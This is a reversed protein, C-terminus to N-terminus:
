YGEFDAKPKISMSEYTANEDGVRVEDVLLVRKKTSSLSRNQRDWRPKYIGTKFYVGKKDNYTNPGTHEIVKVGDKWVEFFGDEKYSRKIHFVWDTWENIKYDGIIKEGTGQIRGVPFTIRKSDWAWTIKWQGNVTRLALPPSAKAIEGEDVDPTSHWQAVVEYVPDIDFNHLYISFAYWREVNISAPERFLKIESRYSGTGDAKIEKDNVKLEFRASYKGLRASPTTVIRIANKCKLCTEKNFGRLNGSEFDGVFIFHDVVFAFFISLILLLLGTLIALSGRHRCYIKKLLLSM